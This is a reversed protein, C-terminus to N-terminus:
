NTADTFIEELPTKSTIKVQVDEDNIVMFREKTEPDDVFKGAYRAFVIHDGAKVWPKWDPQSGDFAKWAMPGVQLVVGTQTGAEELKQMQGPRHVEFNAERLAEPLDVQAELPDPKILLRHGLIELSM